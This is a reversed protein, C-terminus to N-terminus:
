NRLITKLLDYTFSSIKCVFYHIFNLIRTIIFKNGRGQGHKHHRKNENVCLLKSHSCRSLVFDVIDPVWDFKVLVMVGRFFTPFGNDKFMIRFSAVWVRSYEILIWNNSNQPTYIEKQICVTKNSMEILISVIGFTLRNKWLMCYWRISTVFEVILM